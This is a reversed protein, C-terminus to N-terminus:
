RWFGQKFSNLFWAWANEIRPIALLLVMVLAVIITLTDPSVEFM